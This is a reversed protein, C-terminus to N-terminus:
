MLGKAKREAAMEAIIARETAGHDREYEAQLTAQSKWQLAYPHIGERAEVRGGFNELHHQVDYNDIEQGDLKFKNEDQGTIVVWTSLTVDDDLDGEPFISRKEVIWGNELVVRTGYPYRDFYVSGSRREHNSPDYVDETFWGAEQPVASQATWARFEEKKVAFATRADELDDFHTDPEGFPCHWFGSRKECASIEGTQANIHYWGKRPLEAIAEPSPPAIETAVDEHQRRKKGFM